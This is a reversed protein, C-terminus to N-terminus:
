RIVTQKNAKTIIKVKEGIKFPAIGSAHDVKQEIIANKGNAKKVTITQLMRHENLNRFVRRRTEMNVAPYSTAGNLSRDHYRHIQEQPKQEIYSKQISVITATEIKPKKIKNHASQSANNSCASILLVSLYLCFLTITKQFISNM